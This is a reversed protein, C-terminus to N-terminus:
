RKYFVFSSVMFIFGLVVFSVGCPPPPQAISGCGGAICDHGGTSNECDADVECLYSGTGICTNNECIFMEGPISHPCESDDQCTMPEIANGCIGDMCTNGQNADMCDKDVNCTHAGSQRCEGEDCFYQPGLAGPDCDDDTDCTPRPIDHACKGYVCANGEQADYCDQVDECLYFSGPMCLGEDCIFEYGPVESFCDLDDTCEALEVFGCYGAMCINGEGSDICHDDNSCLYAGTEVCESEECVMEYNPAPFACDLDNACNIAFITGILFLGIILIRSFM